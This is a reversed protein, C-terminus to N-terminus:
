HYHVRVGNILGAYDLKDHRPPILAHPFNGPLQSIDFGGESAIPSTADGAFTEVEGNSCAVLLLSVLILMPFRLTDNEM